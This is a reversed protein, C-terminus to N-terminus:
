EAPRGAKDDKARGRGTPPPDPGRLPKRRRRDRGARELAAPREQRRTERARESRPPGMRAARERRAEEMRARRSEAEKQADEYSIMERVSFLVSEMLEMDGSSRVTETLQRVVAARDAPGRAHELCEKLFEVAEAWDKERRLRALVRNRASGAMRGAVKSFCVRAKADDGLRNQYIIGLNFQSVSRTEADPTEEAVGELVVVADQVRDTALYHEALVYLAEDIVNMLQPPSLRHQRGPGRRAPGPTPGPARQSYAAPAALCAVALLPAWRGVISRSSMDM